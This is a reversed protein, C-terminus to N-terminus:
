KRGRGTRERARIKADIFDPHPVHLLGAIKRVMLEEEADKEADAFAVLWLLEVLRKKHEPPLERDVIETFEYVSAAGRSSEEALRVLDDAEERGLGFTSQVAARMVTREEDKVVSDARVVEFLLAAAATRLAREHDEGSPGSVHPAIREEFLRRLSRLVAM